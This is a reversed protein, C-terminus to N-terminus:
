SCAEDQYREAERIQRNYHNQQGVTYGQSKADDWRSRWRRLAGKAYECMSNNASRRPAGQRQRTSQNLTQTLAKSPPLAGNTEGIPVHESNSTPPPREGFVTRGNEDTWKYVQASAPLSALLLIIALRM